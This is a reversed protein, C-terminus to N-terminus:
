GLKKPHRDNGKAHNAYKATSFMRRLKRWARRYIKRKNPPKFTKRMKRGGDKQRRKESGRYVACNIENAGSKCGKEWFRVVNEVENEVLTCAHCGRHVRTWIWKELRSM